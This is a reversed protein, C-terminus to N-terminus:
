TLISVAKDLHEPALHAYRQTMTVDKHWLDVGSMVLWSAYTHRLTHFVVRQRRDTINKNFGIYLSFNMNAITIFFSLILTCVRPMIVTMETDDPISLILIRSDNLM